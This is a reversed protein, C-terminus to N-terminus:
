NHVYELYDTVDYEQTGWATHIVMKTATVEATEEDVVDYLYGVTFQVGNHSIIRFYYGNLSDCHERCWEYAHAKAESYRGYVDELTCDRSEYIRQLYNFVKNSFKKAM